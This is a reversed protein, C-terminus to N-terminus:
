KNKMKLDQKYRSKALSVALKEDKTKKFTKYDVNNTFVPCGLTLPAYLNDTVSNKAGVFRERFSFEM